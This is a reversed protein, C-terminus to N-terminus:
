FNYVRNILDNETSERIEKDFINARILRLEGNPLVVFDEDRLALSLRKNEFFKYCNHMSSYLFNIENYTFFVKYIKRRRIEELLTVGIDEITFIIKIGDVLNEIDEKIFRIFIGEEANNMFKVEAILSKVENKNLGSYVIHNKDPIEFNKKVFEYKIDVDYELIKNKEPEPDYNKVLEKIEKVNKIFNEEDQDNKNIKETKVILEFVKKMYSKRLSKSGINKEYFFRGLEEANKLNDLKPIEIYAQAELKSRYYKNLVESELSHCFEEWQVIGLITKENTIGQIGYSIYANKLCESNKIDNDLWEKYVSINKSNSISIPLKLTAYIIFVALSENYDPQMRMFYGCMEILVNLTYCGYFKLSASLDPNHNSIEQLSKSSTIKKIQKSLVEM